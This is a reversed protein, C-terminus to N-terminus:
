RKAGTAARRRKPRVFGKAEIYRALMGFIAHPNPTSRDYGAWRKCFARIFRDSPVTM